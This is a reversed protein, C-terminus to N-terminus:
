RTPFRASKLSFRRQSRRCTRRTMTFPRIAGCFPRHATTSIAKAVDAFNEGADLRNKAVQLDAATSAQIHRVVVKEGYQAAFAKRLTEENLAKTLEPSAEAIKRLYANVELGLDLEQRSLYQGSQM